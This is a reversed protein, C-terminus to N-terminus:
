FPEPVGSDGDRLVHVAMEDRVVVASGGLCHTAGEVAPSRRRVPPSPEHGRERATELAEGWGEAPEGLGSSAGKARPAGLNARHHAEGQAPRDWWGHRNTPESPRERRVKRSWGVPSGSSPRSVMVAVGPPVSREAAAGLAGARRRPRNSRTTAEPANARSLRDTLRCSATLAPERGASYRSQGPGIRHLRHSEFGRVEQSGTLREVLQAVGGHHTM